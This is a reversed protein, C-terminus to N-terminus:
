ILAGTPGMTAALLATVLTKRPAAPVMPAFLLIIVAIWSVGETPGPAAYDLLGVSLATFVEYGLALDLILRPNLGRQRTFWFLVLSAIVNTAIVGDYLSQWEWYSTSREAPVTGPV